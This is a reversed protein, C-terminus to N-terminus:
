PQTALNLEAGPGSNFTTMTISMMKKDIKAMVFYVHITASNDRYLKLPGIMLRYPVM